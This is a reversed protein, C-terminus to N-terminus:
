EIGELIDKISGKITTEQKIHTEERYESSFKNKLLFKAFPSNYDNSLGQSQLIDAQKQKAWEYAKKVATSKKTRKMLKAWTIKLSCCFGEISPYQLPIPKGEDTYKQTVDFYKYMSDIITQDTVGRKMPSVKISKDKQVLSVEIM